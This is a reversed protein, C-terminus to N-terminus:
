VRCQKCKKATNNQVQFTANDKTNWEGSHLFRNVRLCQHKFGIPLPNGIYCIGKDCPFRFYLFLLFLLVYDINRPRLGRTQNGLRMYDINFELPLDLVFSRRLSFQFYTGMKKFSYKKRIQFEPHFHMSQPMCSDYAAM